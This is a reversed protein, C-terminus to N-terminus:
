PKANREQRILATHEIRANRIMDQLRTVGAPKLWDAPMQPAKRLPAILFNTTNKRITERAEAFTPCNQRRTDEYLERRWDPFNAPITSHWEALDNASWYTM